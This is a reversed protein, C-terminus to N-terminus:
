KAPNQTKLIQSKQQQTQQLLQRWSEAERQFAPIIGLINLFWGVLVVAVAVGVVSGVGSMVGNLLTRWWTLGQGAKIVNGNLTELYQRLEPDLM